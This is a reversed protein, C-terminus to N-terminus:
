ATRRLVVLRLWLWAVDYLMRSIRKIAFFWIPPLSLLVAKSRRAMDALNPEHHVIRVRFQCTSNDEIVQATSDGSGENIVSVELDHTLRPLM